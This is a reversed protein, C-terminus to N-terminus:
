IRVYRVLYLLTDPPSEFQAPRRGEGLDYCMILDGQDFTYICPFSKGKNPGFVGTIVMAPPDADPVLEILGSDIVKNEILQYSTQDLALILQDFQAAPLKKGGLEAGGIKWKGTLEM